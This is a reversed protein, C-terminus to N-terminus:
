KADMAYRFGIDNQYMTEYGMSACFLLNQSSLSSAGKIIHIDPDDDFVSSTYERVNGAMDYVGYVSVDQPFTGPPAGYPYKAVGGSNIKSLANDAKLENGWVFNRGDAGRAAKEWELVTPLRYSRGHKAGLWDCYAQAAAFTIGVVPMNENYPPLVNGSDDWLNVFTRQRSMRKARNMEKSKVPLQKWFSIYEKFTVEYKSIFFGKVFVTRDFQSGSDEYGALFDGAPVYAMGEPIKEPIFVNINLERGPRVYMYYNVVARNETEFVAFYSGPHINKLLMPTKGPRDALEVESGDNCFFLRVKASVPYADISLIGKGDILTRVHLYTESTKNNLYTLDKGRLRILNVLRRMEDYDNTIVAFRLQKYFIESLGTKLEAQYQRIKGIRDYFTIAMNYRAAFANQYQRFERELDKLKYSRGSATENRKEREMERFVSYARMRARDAEQINYRAATLFSRYEFDNYVDSVFMFAAVTILAVVVTSTVIRNRGCLKAFRNLLPDRYAKVSYGAIFRRVDSILAKVSAYRDTKKLAMAKLCIANLERDVKHKAVKGPPPFNGKVVNNLITRINDADNFPSQKYTLLTYLIVGLSYVDSQEDVEDSDGGAQEPSMFLPTGAITGDLTLMMDGHDESYVGFAENIDEEEGKFKVLGWDMVLVEGYDGLMINSPKLDRHIVGKSHAYAVGNCISIFIELLISRSYKELYEPNGAELKFLVEQLNEGGVKKMTFYVGVDDLVGMSHVPVINPHEILATARAERVIRGVSRKRKRYAPRLVKVALDRGLTREHASLVSGIGGHGIERIDKFQDLSSVDVDTQTIRRIHDYSIFEESSALREPEAVITVDNDSSDNFENVTEHPNVKKM